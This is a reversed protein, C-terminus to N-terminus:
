WFDLNHEIAYYRVVYPPLDMSSKLQRIEEEAVSYEGFKSVRKVAVVIDKNSSSVKGVFTNDGMRGDAFPKRQWRIVGVIREQNVEPDELPM